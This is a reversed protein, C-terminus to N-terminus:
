RIITKDNTENQNFETLNIKYHSLTNWKKELYQNIEEQKHSSEGFLRDRDPVLAEFDDFFLITPAMSRAKDFLRSIKEVGGHIYPSSVDSGKVYIYNYGLEEALKTVTYTKGCGPPGYLLIGNPIGIKFKKYKEPDKLPNIVESILLEKLKKMGAVSDLGVLETIEKKINSEITRSYDDFIVGLYEGELTKVDIINHRKRTNVIDKREIDKFIYLYGKDGNLSYVEFSDDSDVRNNIIIDNQIKTGNMLLPKSKNM